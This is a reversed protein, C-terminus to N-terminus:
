ISEKPPQRELWEKVAGVLYLSGTVLIRDNPQARAILTALGELPDPWLGAARTGWVGYDSLARGRFPTETLHVQAGPVAFLPGLVGDADKDKGIGVLIHWRDAPYAPLLELLSQVGPANHDGSLYVRKGSSRFSEMRGPWVVQGLAALARAPDYGLTAFAQLAVSTNLAGRAGALRLPAEGWPTDLRFEPDGDAGARWHFPFPNVATWQSDTKKRVFEALARTELPLPAHIVQTPVHPRTRAELNGVSVSPEPDVIGFKNSAIEVLTNGLLNQHDLGLSAIICTLHPIANTADWTGGLGVELIMREMPAGGAGTAFTWVAMLTMMEFHTLKTSPPLGRTGEMVAHYAECFEYATIERGGLRIRETARILHPSTYLGVREGVSHLLTELTASISGKGNTGAVLIIQAPDLKLDMCALAQHMPELSPPRDPMMGRAELHAVTQPYDMRSGATGAPKGLNKM